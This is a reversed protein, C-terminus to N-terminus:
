RANTRTEVRANETLTDGPYLVVVAGESVGSLVEAEQGTRHGLQVVTRRARGRTVTYLVWDAGERFLASTPVKLVNQAEWLVIHVEVRYADGLTAWAAIPDVIDCVVNVRQEEVGLASVKTFGAPEVRRVRAELVRDGGWQDVLVRAGPVIRVADTSLLDSVIELKAPDGIELLPEGAPVLSESERVRKLVVGAIPAFVTVSRGGPELTSPALRAEARRAESIATQVAYTAARVVQAAARAESDRTDIEQQTALGRRVLEQSRRQEREAQSLANKARQEEARARGVVARAAEVAAQVEFRTRADLLPAAEPRLHAVTQGVRVVDGPELEIREIRGAVPSSVVFRDRVRTQGEEDITVQLPGRSITAVDVPVSAPWLAVAALGALVVLVFWTRRSALWQFM